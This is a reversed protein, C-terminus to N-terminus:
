DLVIIGRRLAVSLAGTRDHVGLKVFIHKMHARVTEQHIALSRAIEKNRMGVALLRVIEVERETLPHKHADVAYRVISDPLQYCGNHVERITRVLDSSVTDKLLYASAGLEMARQVEEAGGYTTLVIIRATPHDRKIEALAQLGSMLPLRLDLLTIDPRWLDHLEIAQAGTGGCGVVEMDPQLALLM